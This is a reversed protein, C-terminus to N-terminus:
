VSVRRALQKEVKFMARGPFVFARGVMVGKTSLDKVGDLVLKVDEPELLTSESIEQIVSSWPMWGRPFRERRSRHRRGDREVQNM